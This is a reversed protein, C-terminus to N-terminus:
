YYNLLMLKLEVVFLGSFVYAIHFNSSNAPFGWVVDDIVLNRKLQHVM